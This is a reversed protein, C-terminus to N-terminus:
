SVFVRKRIDKEMKSPSTPTHKKTNDWIIKQEMCLYSPVSPFKKSIKKSLHQYLMERIPRIYKMKGDKTSTFEECFLNMKPFREEAIKKLAPVYRLAGISIWAIKEQPINEAIFDVIKNYDEKWNPYYIVPDFHFGVFYGANIVKKAALVREKASATKHEETKSIYETNISWSVITNGQHNLNLLSDIQNSKTKLELKANPIKAFFEILLPNLQLINDLALSDSHEGTGITFNMQPRKQCVLAIKQIIEEVNAHVIITPQNHIAQLICYSCELPCNEVFDLTYYNCCVAEFSFGPCHKIPIGLFKKLYLIKKGKTLPTKNKLFKEKWEEKTIIQPQIHPFKTLIKEVYDTKLVEKEVLIEQPRYSYM